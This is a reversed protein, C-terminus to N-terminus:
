YFKVEPVKKGLSVAKNKLISLGEIGIAVPFYLHCQKALM